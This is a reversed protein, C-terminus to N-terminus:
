PMPVSYSSSKTPKRIVAPNPKAAAWLAPRMRWAVWIVARCWVMVMQPAKTAAASNGKVWVSSWYAVM